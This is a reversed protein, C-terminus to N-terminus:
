QQGYHQAELQEIRAELEDDRIAAIILHLLSGLRSADLTDLEGRRTARYVKGLEHRCDGVTNLRSIRLKRKTTM